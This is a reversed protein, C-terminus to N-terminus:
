SRGNQGLHDVVQRRGCRSGACVAHRRYRELYVVSRASGSPLLFGCPVRAVIQVRVVYRRRLGFRLCGCGIRAGLQEGFVREIPALRERQRRLSSPMQFAAVAGGTRELM